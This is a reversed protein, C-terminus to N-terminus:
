SASKGVNVTEANLDGSVTDVQIPTTLAQAAAVGGDKQKIGFGGAALLTAAGGFFTLPDFNQGKYIAYGQFIVGAVGTLFWLVRGMEWSNNDVGKFMNLFKSV